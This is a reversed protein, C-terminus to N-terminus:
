RATRVLTGFHGGLWVSKPTVRVSRLSPRFSKELVATIENPVWQQGHLALASLQNGVVWNTGDALGAGGHLAINVLGTKQLRLGQTWQYLEGDSDLLWVAAAASGWMTAIGVGPKLGVIANEWRKGNWHFVSPVGGDTSAGFLWADSENRAWLGHPALDLNPPLVSQWEKGNFHFVHPAPPGSDRESQALLWRDLESTAFVTILTVHAQDQLKALAPITLPKWDQESGSFELVEDKDSVAITWEDVAAISRLQRASYTLAQGNWHLCGQNHLNFWLNQDSTGTIESVSAENHPTLDFACWAQECHQKGFSKAAEAAKKLQRAEEQEARQQARAPELAENQWSKQQAFFGGGGIVLWVAAHVLRWTIADGLKGSQGRTLASLIAIVTGVLLGGAAGLVLGGVAYLQFVLGSIIIKPLFFLLKAGAEFERGYAEQFALALGLCIGATSGWFLHRFFSDVARLGENRTVPNTKAM